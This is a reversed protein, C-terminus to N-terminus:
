IMFVNFRTLFKVCLNALESALLLSQKMFCNNTCHYRIIIMLCNRETNQEYPIFAFLLCIQKCYKKLQVYRKWVSPPKVGNACLLYPFLLYM